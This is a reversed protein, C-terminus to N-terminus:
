FDPENARRSATRVAALVEYAVLWFEKGSVREEDNDTEPISTVSADEDAFVTEKDRADEVFTAIAVVSPPEPQTPITSSTDLEFIHYTCSVLTAAPRQEPCTRDKRVSLAAALEEVCDGSCTSRSVVVTLEPVVVEVGDIVAAGVVVAAVVVVPGLVVDAVVVVVVV